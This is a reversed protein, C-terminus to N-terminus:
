LASFATKKPSKSKAPKEATAAQHQIHDETPATTTQQETNGGCSAIFLPLVLAFTFKKM